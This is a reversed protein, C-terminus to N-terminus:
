QGNNIIVLPTLLSCRIQVVSCLYVSKYLAFTKGVFLWKIFTQKIWTLDLLFLLFYILHFSTRCLSKLAHMIDFTSICEKYLFVSIIEKIFLCVLFLVNHYYWLSLIKIQFLIIDSFSGPTFFTLPLWLKNYFISSITVTWLSLDSLILVLWTLCVTLAQHRLLQQFNVLWPLWDTPLWWCYFMRWTDPTVSHVDNDM